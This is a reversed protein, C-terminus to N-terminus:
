NLNLETTLSFAQKCDLAPAVDYGAESFIEGLWWLFGLDKDVILVTPGSLTETM